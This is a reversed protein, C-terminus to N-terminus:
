YIMLPVRENITYNGHNVLSKLAGTFTKFKGFVYLHTDGPDDGTQVGLEFIEYPIEERCDYGVSGFYTTETVRLGKRETVRWLELVFSNQDKCAMYVQFEALTGSGSPPPVSTGCAIGRHLLRALVVFCNSPQFWLIQPHGNPM